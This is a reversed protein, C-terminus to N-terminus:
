YVTQGFYYKLDSSNRHNNGTDPLGDTKTFIKYVKWHVTYLVSKGWTFRLTSKSSHYNAIYHPRHPRIETNM